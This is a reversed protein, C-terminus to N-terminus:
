DQVGGHLRLQFLNGRPAGRADQLALGLLRLREGVL